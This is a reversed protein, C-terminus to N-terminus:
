CGDVQTQADKFPRQESFPLSSDLHMRQVVDLGLDWGEEVDSGRSDMVHLRHVGYGVLLVREVDEVPAVVVEFTKVVYLADSSVEHHSPLFVVVELRLSPLPPECFVRPDERIGYAVHVSRKSPLFIGVSYAPHDIPIRLGFSPEHEEGVSHIDFRYRNRIKVFVAPLYLQEEFPELLM